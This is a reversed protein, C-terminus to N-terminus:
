WAYCFSGFNTRILESQLLQIFEEESKTIVFGPSNDTVDKEHLITELRVNRNESQISKLANIIREPNEKYDRILTDYLYSWGITENNNPEYDNCWHDFLAELIKSGGGSIFVHDLKTVHHDWIDFRQKLPEESTQCYHLLERQAKQLQKTLDKVKELLEM